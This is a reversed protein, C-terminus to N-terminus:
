VHGQDHPIQNSFSVYDADSESDSEIQPNVESRAYYKKICSINRKYRRGLFDQIVASNGYRNM